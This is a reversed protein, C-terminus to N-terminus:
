VVVDDGFTQKALSKLLNTQETTLFQEYEDFLLNYADLVDADEILDLLRDANEKCVAMNTMVINLVDCVLTDDEPISLKEEFDNAYALVDYLPTDFDMTALVMEEILPLILENDINKGYLSCIAKPSYDKHDIDNDKLIKQLESLNLM